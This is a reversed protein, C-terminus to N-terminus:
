TICYGGSVLIVKPWCLLSLLLRPYKLTSQQHCSTSFNVKKSNLIVNQESLKKPMRESHHIPGYFVTSNLYLPVPLIHNCYTASAM